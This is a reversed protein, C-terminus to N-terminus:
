TTHAQEWEDDPSDAAGQAGVGHQKQNAQPLIGRPRAGLLPSTPEYALSSKLIIEDSSLFFILSYWKKGWKEGM